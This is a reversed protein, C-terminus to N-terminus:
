EVCYLARLRGPWQVSSLYLLVLEEGPLPEQNGSANCENLGRPQM